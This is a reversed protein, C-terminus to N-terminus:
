ILVYLNDDRISADGNEILGVDIEDCQSTKEVADHCRSAYGNSTSPDKDIRSSCSIVDSSSVKDNSLESRSSQDKADCHSSSM